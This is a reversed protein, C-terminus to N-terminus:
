SRDAGGPRPVTLPPVFSTAALLAGIALLLPGSREDVGLYETFAATEILLVAGVIGLGVGLMRLRRENVSGTGAALIVAGLVLWLLAYLPTAGQDGVTVVPEFLGIGDFGTRAIAVLGAVILALGVAWAALQLLDFRMRPSTRSGDGVDRGGFQLFNPRDARRGSGAAAEAKARAPTVAVVRRSGDGGTTAAPVAQQQRTEDVM